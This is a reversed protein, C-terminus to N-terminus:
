AAKLAELVPQHNLATYTKRGPKQVVVQNKANPRFGIIIYQTGYYNITKGADKPCLGARFASMSNLGKVWKALQPDATEAPKGNLVTGTLKTRFEGADFRITGICLLIGHKRAVEALAQDVERRITKLNVKDFGKIDM